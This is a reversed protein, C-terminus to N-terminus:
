DDLAEVGEDIGPRSWRRVEVLDDAAIREVWEHVGLRVVEDALRTTGRAGEGFVKGVVPRRHQIEASSVPGVSSDRLLRALPQLADAADRDVVDGRQALVLRSSEPGPEAHEDPVSSEPTGRLLSFDVRLHAMPAHRFASVIVIQVASGGVAHRQGLLEASPSDPANNRKRGAPIADVQVTGVVLAVNGIRHLTRNRTHKIVVAANTGTGM